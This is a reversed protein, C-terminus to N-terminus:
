KGVIVEVEVGARAEVEETETSWMIQVEFLNRLNRIEAEMIVRREVGVGVEITMRANLSIATNLMNYQIM